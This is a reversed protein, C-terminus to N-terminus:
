EGNSPEVGLSRLQRELREARQQAQDARQLAQEACEDGTLVLNGQLDFFRLWPLDLNMFRAQRLGLEVGIQPMEFHGRVNPEMRVFHGEILHYMELRGPDVDYIGYFAPRIAREYVWFKGEWPTTDREESGDGSVFELIVLPPIIEQWLVYSRRAAGQVLLPPVGPVYFWDPAKCGKLPPDTIWWYIGSNQGIAFQGDPHLASLVPLISSTLLISQPHEHFNEVPKGDSDPLQTHDPLTKPQPGSLVNM